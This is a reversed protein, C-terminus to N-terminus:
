KAIKLQLLTNEFLKDKEHEDDCTSGVDDAEEEEDVDTGHSVHLVPESETQVEAEMYTKRSDEGTGSTRSSPIKRRKKSSIWMDVADSVLGDCKETCLEPGNVAVHLLGNLMDNKLRNRLDTKIIKVKSAGRDPWANSLPMALVLEVVKTLYPCMYNYENKHKM